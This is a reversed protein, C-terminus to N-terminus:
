IRDHKHTDDEKPIFVIHLFMDMGEALRQLLRVSPNRIGREIKSIETQAIGTKESLKKQSIKRYRRAKVLSHMGIIERNKGTQKKRTESDKPRVHSQKESSM